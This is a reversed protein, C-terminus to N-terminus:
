ESVKEIKAAMDPVVIMRFTAQECQLIWVKANPKSLTADLHAAKPQSCAFGQDRAQSALLDKVPELGDDARAGNGALTVAAAMAAFALSKGM